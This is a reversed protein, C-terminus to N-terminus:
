VAVAEGGREDSTRDVGGGQSGAPRGFFPPLGPAAAEAGGAAGAAAAGAQETAAAATGAEAVTETWGAAEAAEDHDDILQMYSDFFEPTLCFSTIQCGGEHFPCSSPWCEDGVFETAICSELTSCWPDSERIGEVDCYQMAMDIVCSMVPEFEADYAVKWLENYPDGHGYPLNSEQTGGGTMAQELQHNKRELAEIEALLREESAARDKRGGGGGFVNLREMVRNYGSIFHMTKTWGALVEHYVVASPPFKASSDHETPRPGLVVGSLPDHDHFKGAGFFMFTPYFQMNIEQCFAAATTDQQRCRTPM